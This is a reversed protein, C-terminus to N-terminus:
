AHQAQMNKMMTEETIALLDTPSFMLTETDGKSAPTHGPPVYYADGAEYVEVHDDFAFSLSGRTVLGWHPCHCQDNPLGRLLETGDVDEKFTLFDATYGALDTAGSVVPGYDKFETTERNTKPM